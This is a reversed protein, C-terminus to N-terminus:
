FPNTTIFFGLEDVLWRQVEMDAAFTVVYLKCSHRWRALLAINIPLAAMLQPVRNFCVSCLAVEIPGGPQAVPPEGNWSELEETAMQKISALEPPLQSICLRARWVFREWTGLEPEREIPAHTISPPEAVVEEQEEEEEETDGGWDADDWAPVPEDRRQRQAPPQQAEEAAATEGQEEAQEALDLAETARAVDQDPARSELLVTFQTRLKTLDTPAICCDPRLKTNQEAASITLQLMEQAAQAPGFVTLRCGGRRQRAWTNRDRMRIVCGCDSAVQNLWRM